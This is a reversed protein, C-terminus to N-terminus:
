FWMLKFEFLSYETLFNVKLWMKTTWNKTQFNPDIFMAVKFPPEVVPYPEYFIYRLNTQNRQELLMDITM